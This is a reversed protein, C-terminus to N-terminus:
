GVRGHTCEGPCTAGGYDFPLRGNCVACRKPAGRDATPEIPAFPDEGEIIMVIARPLALDEEPAPKFNKWDM